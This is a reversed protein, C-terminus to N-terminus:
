QVDHTPPNSVKEAKELYTRFLTPNPPLSLDEEGNRYLMSLYYCAAPHSKKECAEKLYFLARDRNPKVM